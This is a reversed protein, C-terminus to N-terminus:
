KLTFKFYGNKVMVAHVGQSDLLVGEVTGGYTKGDDSRYEIRIVFSADSSPEIIVPDSGIGIIWADYIDSDYNRYDIYRVRCLDYKDLDGAKTDIITGASIKRLIILQMLDILTYSEDRRGFEVTITYLYSSDITKSLSFTETVGNIDAILQNDEMNRIMEATNEEAGACAANALLILFVLMMTANRLTKM